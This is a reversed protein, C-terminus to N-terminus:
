FTSVIDSDSLPVMPLAADYEEHYIKLLSDSSLSNFHFDPLPLNRQACEQAQLSM